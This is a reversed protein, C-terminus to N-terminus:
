KSTQIRKKSERPPIVMVRIMEKIAASIRHRLKKGEATVAASAERADESDASISMLSMLKGSSFNRLNM